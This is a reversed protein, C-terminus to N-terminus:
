RGLARYTGWEDGETSENDVRGTLPIKVNVPQNWRTELAEGYLHPLRPAHVQVRPSQPEPLVAKVMARPDQPVTGCVGEPMDRKSPMSSNRQTKARPYATSGSTTIGFREKRHFPISHAGVRRVLWTWRDAQEPTRVRPTTWNLTQKCFRYTHELDFRHVYARWMVTLDPQGPGRWWLWLRRPIRTQRPLREVEVLVLTGRVVAKTRYSGKAPHNHTKPTCTPGLACVYGAM